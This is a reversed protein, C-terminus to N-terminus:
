FALFCKDYKFGGVIFRDFGAGRSEEKTLHFQFLEELFFMDLPQFIVSPHHVPVGFKSFGLSSEIM